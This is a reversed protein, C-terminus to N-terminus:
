GWACEAWLEPQASGLRKPVPLEQGVRGTLTPLVSAPTKAAPTTHREHIYSKEAKGLPPEFRAILEVLM